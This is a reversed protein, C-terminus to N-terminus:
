IQNLGSDIFSLTKLSYLITNTYSSKCDLMVTCWLPLWIVFNDMNFSTVIYAIKAHANEWSSWTISIRSLRNVMYLRSYSKEVRFLSVRCQYNRGIQLFELKSTTIIELDLRTRRNDARRAVTAGGPFLRSRPISPSLMPRRAMGDQSLCTCHVLFQMECLGNCGRNTYVDSGDCALTIDRSTICIVCM